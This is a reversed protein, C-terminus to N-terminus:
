QRRIIDDELLLISTFLLSRICGIIYREVQLVLFNYEIALFPATPLLARAQATADSPNKVPSQGLRAPWAVLWQQKGELLWTRSGWAMQAPAAAPQPLGGPVVMALAVHGSAGLALAKSAETDMDIAGVYVDEAPPEGDM